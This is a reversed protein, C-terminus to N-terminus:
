HSHSSGGSPAPSSAGSHGGGSNGGAASAGGFGGSSGASGGGSSRSPAAGPTPHFGSNAGGGFGAGRSNNGAFGTSGPRTNFAGRSVADPNPEPAHPTGKVEHVGNALIPRANAASGKNSAGANASSGTEPSANIYRNQSADYAVGHLQALSSATPVALPPKMGVRQAESETILKGNRMPGALPEFEGSSQGPKWITLPSGDGIKGKGGIVVPADGFPKGPIPHRSTTLTTAPGRVPLPRGIPQWCARGGTRCFQVPAPSFFGYDGPFWTWGGCGSAYNWGGFHYPMWGWPEFSVWTWGLGSYMDWYGNYFPTFGAAMGFPQWGFGYGPCSLWSGYSSLDSFGYDVPSNTYQATQNSNSAIAADRSNVWQDWSDRKPNPTIAPANGNATAAPTGASFTQGSAITQSGASSDVSATGDFVNLSGADRSAEIRMKARKPIMVTFNPSSIQFTDGQHVHADFSATGQSLTLKNIRGGDSLALETFQVLSNEAIWLTAGSEFEVEARGNNTGIAFGQQIPMNAVAIEWDSSSSRAIQVDGTVFSLRVIRAYSYTKEDARLPSTAALLGVVLSAVALVAFLLRRNM